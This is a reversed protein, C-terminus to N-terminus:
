PDEPGVEALGVDTKGYIEVHIMFLDFDHTQRFSIISVDHLYRTSHFQFLFLVDLALFIMSLLFQLNRYIKFVSLTFSLVQYEALNLTTRFLNM